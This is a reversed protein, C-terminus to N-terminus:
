VIEKLLVWKVPHKKNKISIGNIVPTFWTLTERDFAMVIFGYEEWYTLCPLNYEPIFGVEPSDNYTWAM